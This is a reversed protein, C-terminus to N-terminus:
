KMSIDLEAACFISNLSVSLKLIQLLLLHYKLLHAKFFPPAQINMVWLLSHDLPQWSLIDPCIWAM